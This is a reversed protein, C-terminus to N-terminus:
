ELIEKYIKMIAEACKAWSFKKARNLCFNSANKHYSTDNFLKYIKYAWIEFSKPPCLYEENDVVEPLSGANSAIVPTSCAMSELVPLGFGEYISPFVFVKANRYIAGLEDDSVFGLESIQDNLKLKDILSFVAESGPGRKGAIVFHIILNLKQRIYNLSKLITDLNKKPILYGVFLLYNKDIGYKALIKKDNNVNQNFIKNDFGLNIVDVNNIGYLKKIDKKTNNSIAILRTSKKLIHPLYFKYLYWQIKKSRLDPFKYTLLDFVTTVTPCPANYIGYNALNHFIDIKYRKLIRSINITYAIRSLIGDVEPYQVFNLNKYKHEKEPKPGIAFFSDSPHLKCLYKLVENTYRGGGDPINVRTTDLAIRM